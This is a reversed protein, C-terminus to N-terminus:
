RTRRGAESGRKQAHRRVSGNRSTEVQGAERISARTRVRPECAFLSATLMTGVDDSRIIAIAHSIKRDSRIIAATYIDTHIVIVLSKLRKSELFIKYYPYKINFLSLCISIERCINIKKFFYKTRSLELVINVIAIPLFRSIYLCSVIIFISIDCVSSLSHTILRCHEM